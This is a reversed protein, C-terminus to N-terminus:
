GENTWAGRNLGSKFDLTERGGDAAGLVRHLVDLEELVHAAEGESSSSGNSSSEDSSRACAASHQPQGGGLEAWHDLLWPHEILATPVQVEEPPPPAWPEAAAPMDPFMAAIEEWPKWANDSVIAGGPRHFCDCLIEFLWEASYTDDDTYTWAGWDMKYNRAWAQKDANDFEECGVDPIAIDVLDVKCFCCVRPNQVAGVLKVTRAGAPDHFRFCCSVFFVRRHCVKSLWPLPRGRRTLDQVEFQELAATVNAPPRGLPVCAAARLAPVQERASDFSQLFANLESTAGADLRCTNVRMQPM